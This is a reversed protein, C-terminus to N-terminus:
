ATGGALRRCEDRLRIMAMHEAFGEEDSGDDEVPWHHDTSAAERMVKEHAIEAVARADYPGPAHMRRYNEIAHEMKGFFPELDQDHLDASTIDDAVAEADRAAQARLIALLNDPVDVGTITTSAGTM